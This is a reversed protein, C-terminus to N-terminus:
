ELNRFLYIFHERFTRWHNWHPFLLDDEFGTVPQERTKIGLSTVLSAPGWPLGGSIGGAETICLNDRRTVMDLYTGPKLKDSTEFFLFNSTMSFLIQLGAVPWAVRRPFYDILIMLIGMQNVNTQRSM